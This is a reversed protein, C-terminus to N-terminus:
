LFNIKGNFLIFRIRSWYQIFLDLTNSMGRRSWATLQWLKLPHRRQLHVVPEGVTPLLHLSSCVYTLAASRVLAPWCNVCMCVGVGVCMCPRKWGLGGNRNGFKNEFRQRANGCFIVLSWLVFQPEVWACRETIHLLLSCEVSQVAPNCNFPWLITLNAVFFFM